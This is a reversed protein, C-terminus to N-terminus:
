VEQYATLVVSDPDQDLFPALVEDELTKWKEPYDEKGLPNEVTGWLKEWAERSEYVTITGYCGRREGKIGKVFVHEVIGPIRTLGREHAKRVAEEFREENAGPRLVYEHVSIIRPM